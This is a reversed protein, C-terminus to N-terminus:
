RSLRQFARVAYPLTVATVVLPWMVALMVAHDSLWGTSPVGPNGFAERVATTTWSLPNLTAITGLWGPMLEPSAFANSLMTLPYLLGFPGNPIPGFSVRLWSVEAFSRPPSPSM